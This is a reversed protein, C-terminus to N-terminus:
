LADEPSVDPGSIIAKIVGKGDSSKGQKTTEFAAIADGFAFRCNGDNAMDSFHEDDPRM